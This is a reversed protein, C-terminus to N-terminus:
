PGSVHCHNRRGLIIGSAEYARRMRYFKQRVGERHDISIGEEQCWADLGRLLAGRQHILHRCSSFLHLRFLDELAHILQLRARRPLYNYYEPRRMANDPLVIQLPLRRSPQHALPADHLPLRPPKQLSRKLLLQEYSGRPLRVPRGFRHYAWEQLYPEVHLTITLDKLPIFLSYHLIFLSYHLIFFSSHLIFFSYHIIFLSSHLIFFSSLPPPKHRM